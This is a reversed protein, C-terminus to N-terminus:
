PVVMQDGGGGWLGAEIQSKQLEVYGGCGFKAQRWHCDGNAAVSACSIFGIM